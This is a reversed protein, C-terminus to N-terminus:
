PFRYLWLNMSSPAQQQVVFRDGAPSLQGVTLPGLDSTIRDTVMTTLNVRVLESDSLTAALFSGRVSVGVPTGQGGFDYLTSTDGSALVQQLVRSDGAITYYITTGDVSAWLSNAGLTNPVVTVAAPSQTLDLIAIEVGTVLTDFRTWELETGVYALKDQNLWVIHTATNHLNGSPALYPFTRVAVGTDGQDLRGIRLASRDPARRVRKGVQDVWAARGDITPAVSNLASISDALRYKPWCKESHRTGGEAPIIALCRNGTDALSTWTYAIGSGDPLWAPALDDGFDYTLQIPPDTTRPGLPPNHGSPFPEAHGCSMSLLLVVPGPAVRALPRAWGSMLSRPMPTLNNLRLDIEQQVCGPRPWLKSCHHRPM